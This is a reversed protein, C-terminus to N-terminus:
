RAGVFTGLCFGSHFHVTSGCDVLVLRKERCPVILAPARVSVRYRVGRDRGHYWGHLRQARTRRREAHDDHVRRQRQEFGLAVCWVRERQGLRQVRIRHWVSVRLACPVSFLLFPTLDYQVRHPHRTGHIALTLRLMVRTRASSHAYPIRRRDPLRTADGGGNLFGGSPFISKSGPADVSFTGSTAYITTANAPDAFVVEYNGGTVLTVNTRRGHLM